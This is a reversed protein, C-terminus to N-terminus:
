KNDEDNIFLRFLEIYHSYKDSCKYSIFNHYHSEINNILKEIISFRLMLTEYDDSVEKNNIKPLKIGSYNMDKAKIYVPIEERDINFILQMEIINFNRKFLQNCNEITIEQGTITVKEDIKFDFSKSERFYAFVIKNGISYNVLENISNYYCQNLFEYGLHYYEYKTTLDM